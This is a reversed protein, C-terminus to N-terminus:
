SKKRPIFLFQYIAILLVTLISSLFTRILIQFFESFRFIEVLFYSFHHIFVMIGVYSFFTKYKLTQISPTIPNEIESQPFVLKLVFVRSFGMLTSAFAHFGLEGSFLDISFGVSFSLILLLWNPINTPLMIIFLVYLYPTVYNGLLINNLVLVQFLILFVFRLVNHIILKNM